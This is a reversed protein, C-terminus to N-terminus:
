RPTSPPSNGDEVCSTLLATRERAATLAAVARRRLAEPGADTRTETM